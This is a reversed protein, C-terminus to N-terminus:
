KKLNKLAVLKEVLDGDIIQTVTDKWAEESSKSLKFNNTDLDFNWSCKWLIKKTKGDFKKAILGWKKEDAEDIYLSFNDAKNEVPLKLNDFLKKDKVTVFKCTYKKVQDVM